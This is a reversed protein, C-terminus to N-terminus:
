NFSNPVGKEGLFRKGEDSVHLVFAILDEWKTYPHVVLRMYLDETGPVPAFDVAFRTKPLSKHIHKVCANQM